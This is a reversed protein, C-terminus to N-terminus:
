PKKLQPRGSRKMGDIDYPGFEEMVEDLFRKWRIREQEVRIRKAAEESRKEAEREKERQLREKAAQEQQERAKRGAERSREEAQRAREERASESEAKERAARKEEEMRRTMEAEAAEREQEARKRAARQEEEARRQEEDKHRSEQRERYRTWQDQLNFYRADYESRKAEDILCEYAERIKCFDQADISKGPAKKDPHHKKALRRFAAKIERSSAQQPLGLDAYYDRVQPESLNFPDMKTVISTCSIPGQRDRSFRESRAQGSSSLM